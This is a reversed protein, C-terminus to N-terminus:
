ALSLGVVPINFTYSFVLLDRMTAASRGEKPDVAVFTKSGSKNRVVRDSNCPWWNFVRSM